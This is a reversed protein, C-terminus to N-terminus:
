QDRRPAEPIFLLSGNKHLMSRWLMVRNCLKCDLAPVDASPTPRSLGLPLASMLQATFNSQSHFFVCFRMQSIICDNGKM